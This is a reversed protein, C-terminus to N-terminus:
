VAKSLPWDLLPWPTKSLSSQRNANCGCEGAGAGFLDIIVNLPSLRVDNPCIVVHGFGRPHMCHDLKFLWFLKIKILVLSFTKLHFWETSINTWWLYDEWAWSRQWRRLLKPRRAQSPKPRHCWLLRHTLSGSEWSNPIQNDQASTWRITQHQSYWPTHFHRPNLTNLSTNDQTAYPVDMHTM